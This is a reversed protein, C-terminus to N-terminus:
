PALIPFLDTATGYLKSMPKGELFHSLASMTKNYTEERVAHNSAGRLSRGFDRLRIAASEHDGEVIGTRMVQLFRNIKARDQTYSAKACVALMPANMGVIKPASACVFDIVEAHEQYAELLEDFSRTGRDRPGWKLMRAVGAKRSEVDTGLFNAVDNLTRVLGRDMMAIAKRPVSRAVLLEQPKGSKVIASLTHQGNGLKGTDDFCVAVPKREWNDSSMDRAYQDVARERLRRNGSNQELWRNAIAPTVMEVTLTMQGYKLM